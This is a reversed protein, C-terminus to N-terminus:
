RSSITELGENRVFAGRNVRAMINGMDTDLFSYTRSRRVVVILPYEEIILFHDLCIRLAEFRQFWEGIQINKLADLSRLEVYLHCFSTCIAFHLYPWPSHVSLSEPIVHFVCFLTCSIVIVSGM